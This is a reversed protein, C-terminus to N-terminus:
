RIVRRWDQEFEHVLSQTNLRNPAMPLAKMDPPFSFMERTTDANLYRMPLRYATPPQYNLQPSALIFGWEGFSPVYAHYPWTRLGVERLTADITWYAHPAFFPSTSQVVMLGNAALHKQVLGYFPVSYLKGLAFSSPDPFDIIAADFMDRNNQLWVAADANVVKVRKDKFAGGNLKALEDRTTFAATMAPDLDVLTVQEINPYRLIERLALGDGGGLVLVRRAWPLAQLAPHVLAEHYRYEDRSSFQLNGNIYLRMDDKWRTIVLRQYPTTTSFVIEDGFLGHEGWYVMRDSAAFGCVLLLMVACARLLRGTLNELERRFVHITWLAVGVNLMGFLFGTRVLGLHPALVLPFLLSVALAGLYDFTLVRSVLENFATDRDNLARMVLPVEMGVLAGILFVMVYLLTRFPAAMWAFTLFLVAASVGGILGVALEIDVFRSLVDEDKVYKSLHAGVGMAFLYCGIITSFQLISDGLLYSSLAGAILEYALGCSAVVFVSLILIKKTM